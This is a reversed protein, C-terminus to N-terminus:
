PQAQTAHGSNREGAQGTTQERGGSQANHPSQGPKVKEQARQQSAGQQSQGSRGQASPQQEHGATRGANKGTNGGGTGGTM